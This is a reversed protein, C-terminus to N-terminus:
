LPVASRSLSPSFNSKRSAMVILIKARMIVKLQEVILNSNPFHLCFGRMGGDRMRVRCKSVCVIVHKVSTCVVQKDGYRAAGM